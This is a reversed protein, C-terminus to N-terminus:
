FCVMIRYQNHEDISALQNSSVISTSTQQLRNREQSSDKFSLNSQSSNEVGFRNCDGIMSSESDDRGM